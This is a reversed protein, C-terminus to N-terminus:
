KCVHICINLQMFKLSLSWFNISVNYFMKFSRIRLMKYNWLWNIIITKISTFIVQFCLRGIPGLIPWLLGFNVSIIHDSFNGFTEWKPGIQDVKPGLDLRGQKYLVGFVSLIHIVFQYTWKDVSFQSSFWRSLFESGPSYM